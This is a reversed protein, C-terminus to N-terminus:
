KELDAMERLVARAHPTYVHYLGQQKLARCFQWYNAPYNPSIFLFNKM